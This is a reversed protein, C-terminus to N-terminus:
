LKLSYMKIRSETVLIYKNMVIEPFAKHLRKSSLQNESFYLYSMSCLIPVIISFKSMASLLFAILSFCILHVKKKLTFHLEFVM